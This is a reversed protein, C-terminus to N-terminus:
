YLQTPIKWFDLALRMTYLCNQIHWMNEELSFVTVLLTQYAAGDPTLFLSFKGPLAHNYTLFFNIDWLSFLNYKRSFSMTHTWIHIWNGPYLWVLSFLQVIAEKIIFKMHWYLLSYSRTRWELVIGPAKIEWDERHRHGICPPLFLFCSMLILCHEKMELGLCTILLLQHSSCSSLSPPPPPPPSPPSHELLQIGQYCGPTPLSLWLPPLSGYCTTVIVWFASYFQWSSSRIEWNWFEDLILVSYYQYSFFM